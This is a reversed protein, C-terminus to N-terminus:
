NSDVAVGLHEAIAESWALAEDEYIGEAVTFSDGDAGAVFLSYHGEFLSLVVKSPHALPGQAQRGPEPSTSLIHDVQQQAQELRGPLSVLDGVKVFSMVSTAAVACALAFLLFFVIFFVIQGWSM